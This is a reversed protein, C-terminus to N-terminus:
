QLLSILFESERKWKERVQQKELAQLFTELMLRSM